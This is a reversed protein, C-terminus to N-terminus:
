PLVEKRDPLQEVYAAKTRWRGRCRLCIVESYASPTRRSGNFRSYNCKRSSVVWAREKLPKHLEGCSCPVSSSM